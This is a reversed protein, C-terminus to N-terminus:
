RSFPNGLVACARGADVPPSTKDVRSRRQRFLVAPRAWAGHWTIVPLALQRTMARRKRETPCAWRLRHLRRKFKAVREPSLHRAVLGGYSGTLVHFRQPLDRLRSAALGPPGPPLDYSRLERSEVLANFARFIGGDGRIGPICVVPLRASLSM